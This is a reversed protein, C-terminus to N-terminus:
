PRQIDHRRSARELGLDLRLTRNESERKDLNAKLTALDPPPAGAPLEEGSVSALMKRLDRNQIRYKAAESRLERSHKANVPDAIWAQFDPDSGQDRPPPTPQQDTPDSDDTPDANQSM